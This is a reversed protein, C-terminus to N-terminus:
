MDIGKIQSEKKTKIEVRNQEGFLLDHISLIYNLRSTLTPVLHDGCIEIKIGFDKQLLIKTLECM